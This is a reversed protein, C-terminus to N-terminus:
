YYPYPYPPTVYPYQLLSLAALNALPYAKRRFRRFRRRYGHHGYGHHGYSPHGYGHYQRQDDSQDEREQDMVDEGVLVIIRDVDVNEIIGDLTSGDKMTLIVHYYMHKKCKEHLPHAEHGEHYYEDKEKCM